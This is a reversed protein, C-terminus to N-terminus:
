SEGPPKTGRAQEYRARVGAMYRDAGLKCRLYWKDWWEASYVAEGYTRKPRKKALKRLNREEPDIPM